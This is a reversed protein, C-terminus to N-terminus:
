FAIGINVLRFTPIFKLGEDHGWLRKLGFGVGVYFNDQKGLIWSRNVDIGAGFYTKDGIVTPGAKVGFSWGRFAEPTEQPYFRWFADINVYRDGDSTFTSGGVGVTYSEGATHEYEANFWELLLGFPNASVVQTPPAGPAQAAARVATTVAFALALLAPRLTRTNTM